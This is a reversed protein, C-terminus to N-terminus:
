FLLSTSPPSCLFHAPEHPFTKDWDENLGFQMRNVFITAVVIDCNQKAQEVLALHASHLNGMTPVIAVSAGKRRDENLADRLSQIHHFVQM